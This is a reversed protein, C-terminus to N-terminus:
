FTHRNRSADCISAAREFLKQSLGVVDPFREVTIGLPITGEMGVYDPTKSGDIRLTVAEYEHETLPEAPLKWHYEAIDLNSTLKSKLRKPDSFGYEESKKGRRKRGNEARDSGSAPRPGHEFDTEDGERETLQQDRM